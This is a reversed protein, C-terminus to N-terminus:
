GLRLFGRSDRRAAERLLGRPLWGGLKLVHHSLHCFVVHLHEVFYIERLLLQLFRATIKFFQEVLFYMLLIRVFQYFLRRAQLSDVQLRVLHVSKPEEDRHVHSVSQLFLWGDSFVYTAYAHCVIHPQPLGQLRYRKDLVEMLFFQGLVGVQDDSRERNAIVPDSFELSEGWVQVHDHVFSVFSFPAPALYHAM